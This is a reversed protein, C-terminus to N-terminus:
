LLDLYFTLNYQHFGGKKQLCATPDRDWGTGAVKRSSQMKQLRKTSFSLGQCNGVFEGVGQPGGCTDAELPGVAAGALECIQCSAWPESGASILDSSLMNMYMCYKYISSIFVVISFLCSCIGPEYLLFLLLLLWLLLFIYVYICM